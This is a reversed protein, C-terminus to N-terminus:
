LVPRDFNQFYTPVPNDNSPTSASWPNSAIAMADAAMDESLSVSARSSLPSM